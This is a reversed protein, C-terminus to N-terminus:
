NKFKTVVGCTACEDRYYLVQSSAKCEEIHPCIIEKAAVPEIPKDEAYKYKMNVEVFEAL